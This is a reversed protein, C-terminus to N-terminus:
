AKGNDAFKFHDMAEQLNKSNDKQTEAISALEESLSANIQSIESIQAVAMNVQNIGQKQELSAATIEKVLQATKQIVPVIEGFLRGAQDSIKSSERSIKNIEQSASKSMEALKRVENAVVTFGKGHAGAKAAEIAANLSLLNTQNAIEEILNIKETIKEMHEIVQKVANFGEAAKAESETAIKNAELANDSNMSVSAAMEELSTSSEEVTSALQTVSSSLSQTSEGVQNSSSVFELAINRTNQIIISLKEVYSNMNLVLVGLEDMSTVGNRVTLDGKSLNEMADYISKVSHLMSSSFSYTMVFTVFLGPILFIILTLFFNYDPLKEKIYIVKGITYKKNLPVIAIIKEDSNEYITFPKNSKFGARLENNIDEWQPVYIRKDDPAYLIDGEQSAIFFFNDYDTKVNKLFNILQNYKIENSQKKISQVLLDNYLIANKKEETIVQNAVAYYSSGGLWNIFALVIALLPIAIRMRITMTESKKIKLGRKDAESSFLINIDKNIMSAAGTVMLACAICPLLASFLSAASIVGINNYIWYVFQIILTSLSASTFVICCFMPFNFSLETVNLLIDDPIKEKDSLAKYTGEIKRLPRYLVVLSIILTIFWIFFDFKLLVSKQDPSSPVAVNLMIVPPISYIFYLFIYSAFIKEIYRKM